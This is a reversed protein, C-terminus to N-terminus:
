KADDSDASGVEDDERMRGGKVSVQRASNTQAVQGAYEWESAKGADCGAREPTKWEGEVKLGELPAFCTKKRTKGAQGQWIM